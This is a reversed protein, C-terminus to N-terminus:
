TGSEPSQPLTLRVDSIYVIRRTEDVAYYVYILPGGGRYEQLGLDPLRYLPDGWAAPEVQLRHISHKIAALFEPGLGRAAATQGLSQIQNRNKGSLAVRYRPSPQGAM